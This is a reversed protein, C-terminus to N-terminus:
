RRLDEMSKRLCESCVRSPANPDVHPLLLKNSSCPGCFVGGCARCHHRRRLITFSRLCIECEKADADPKWDPVKPENTGIDYEDNQARSEEKVIRQLAARPNSKETHIRMLERLDQAPAVETLQVKEHPPRALCVQQIIPLASLPHAPLNRPDPKQKISFIIDPEGTSAKLQILVRPSSTHKQVFISDITNLEVVRRLEGDEKTFLLLASTLVMLRKHRFGRNSIKEVVSCAYAKTGPFKKSVAECMKVPRPLSKQDPNKPKDNSIDKIKPTKQSNKSKTSKAADTSTAAQEPQPDATPSLESEVVTRTQGNEFLVDYQTPHCNLKIAQVEAKYGIGDFTYTVQQSKSFKPNPKLDLSSEPLDRTTGDDFRVSYSSGSVSEVIGVYGIGEYTYVVNEGISYKGNETTKPLAISLRDEETTREKGDSFRIVYSPPTVTTDVATILATTSTTGQQYQIQDGKKYLPPQPRNRSPAKPLPSSPGGLGISRHMCSSAMSSNDPIGSSSDTDSDSNLMVRKRSGPPRARAMTVHRLGGDDSSSSGDSSDGM